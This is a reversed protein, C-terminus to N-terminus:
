VWWDRVDLRIHTPPTPLKEWESTAAHLARCFKDLSGERNGVEAMFKNVEQISWIFSTYAKEQNDEFIGDFGAGILDQRELTSGSTVSGERLWCNGPQELWEILPRTIWATLKVEAGAVQPYAIMPPRGSDDSIAKTVHGSLVHPATRM